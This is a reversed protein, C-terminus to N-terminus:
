RKPTPSAEPTAQPPAERTSRKTDEAISAPRMAELGYSGTGRSGGGCGSCVLGAVIGCAAILSLTVVVRSLTMQENFYLHTRTVKIAM